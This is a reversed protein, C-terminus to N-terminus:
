LYRIQESLKKVEKENIQLDNYFLPAQNSFKIYYSFTNNGIELSLVEESDNEWEFSVTGNPNPFVDSLQMLDKDNLMSVLEIANSSSKVELPIANYGDWNNVLSKFSVIKEFLESKNYRATHIKKFESIFHLHPCEVLDTYNKTFQSIDKNQIFKVNGIAISDSLGVISFAGLAGMALIKPNIIRRDNTLSPSKPNPDITADEYIKDIIEELAESPYNKNYFYDEMKNNYNSLQM